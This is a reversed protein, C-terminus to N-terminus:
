FFTIKFGFASAITTSTGIAWNRFQELKRLRLEHDDDRTALTGVREDIRVLLETQKEVSLM